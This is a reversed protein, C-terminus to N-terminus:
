KTEGTVVFASVVAWVAVGLLVIVTPITVGPPFQGMMPVLFLVLLLCSWIAVAPWAGDVLVPPADNCHDRERVPQIMGVLLM